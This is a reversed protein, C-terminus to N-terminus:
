RRPTGKPGGKSTGLDFAQELQPRRLKWENPLGFVFEVRRNKSRNEPTLNPAVPKTDAYGSVRLHTPDLHATDILYHLVSTARAASLEWNSPFRETRIPTSDTHGEIAVSDEFVAFLKSVKELIPMADNKLTAEGNDFLIRDKVRVVITRDNVIVEVDDDLKQARIAQRLAQLVLMDDQSILPGQSGQANDFTLPNSSAAEYTGPENKQVGFAEKISGLLDKFEVVDMQAFSLLLVFFTLLLTALDSFTTMWAPAGEECECEDQPIEM